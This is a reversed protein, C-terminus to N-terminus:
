GLDARPLTALEIGASIEGIEEPLESLQVNSVFEM